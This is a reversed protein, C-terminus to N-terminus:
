KELDMFLLAFGGVLSVFMLIIMIILFLQFGLPQMKIIDWSVGCRLPHFNM